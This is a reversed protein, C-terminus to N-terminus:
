QAVEQFCGKSRSEAYLNAVQTALNNENELWLVRAATLNKQEIRAENFLTRQQERSDQIALIKEFLSMCDRQLNVNNQLNSPEISTCGLATLAIAHCINNKVNM